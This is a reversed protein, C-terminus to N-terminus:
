CRWPQGASSGIKAARKSASSSSCAQGRCGIPWRPSRSRSDQDSPENIDVTGIETLVTEACTANRKNDRSYGAPDDKGYGLHERMEADLAAEVM